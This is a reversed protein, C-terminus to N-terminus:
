EASKLSEASYIERLFRSPTTALLRTQVFGNASALKEWTPYSLPYPVWMNGHDANYEVLLLRGGPKLYERVLSLVGEKARQFHLSNAMVIGDLPPLEIPRTYDATLYTVQAEPFQLTMSIEQRELSHTERDVSYIQADPGLLDALALTFAGAGSGFDAWIGGPIPVGDRLLRVHDQHNL